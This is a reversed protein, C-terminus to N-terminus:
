VPAGSRRRCDTSRYLMTLLAQSNEGFAVPDVRLGHRLPLLPGVCDVTLGPRGLRLGRRQGDFFLCDYNGESTVRKEREVVAEVGQLRRDRM